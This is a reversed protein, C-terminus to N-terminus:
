NRPGRGGDKFQLMNEIKPASSLWVRIALAVDSQFHSSILVSRFLLPLGIVRVLAQPRKSNTDRVLLLGNRGYRKHDWIFWDREPSIVWDCVCM